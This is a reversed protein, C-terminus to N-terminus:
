ASLDLPATLRVICGQGPKSEIVLSGGLDAMREQISFLGFGSAPNQQPAATQSDFGVGDDGVIIEINAGDRKLSVEVENAQAHRVVNALLERVNRFLIARVDETLPKEQGDDFFETQLGDHSGIQDRLWASVATELGLENLIPSSLDFILTRTDRIAELLSQSVEDLLANRRSESTVKRATGVQIRALALSQSVHDHLDAAIRRREREEVLTLEAALAKLRQQYAELAKEAQKQESIDRGICYMTQEELMPTATWSITHISGDKGIYRNEFDITPHGAALQDVESDNKAHDDPHIFDLFPRSLLEEQTYGLVREWAPNLYKFWSDMGAICILNQSTNLIRDREEQLQKRLTIDEIVAVFYDPVGRDTHVLSVTLNVWVIKGDKRFYRKELFYSTAKGDLLQQVQELDNELDDPHTIDQFTLALMEDHTYDVIDCFRQNLRLFRGDPAVHAIGVAAQEFTARFRVESERLAEEARKRTTIDESMFVASTINGREDRLPFGLTQIWCKRSVPKEFDLTKLTDIGDYEYQPFRVEEGLYVKEIYPMVGLTEAQADTHINYKEYLEKLTADNLAYLQAYADNSQLLKGDLGHIQISVPSQEIVARFNEESKQLEEEARKREVIEARLTENAEVLEATQEAVLEQLHLQVYRLQLHTNVRALVEAEEYPKSVFDVGGVEFGQVRDDVDQLASVFIVPIDATRKDRKLRRCLEFGDMEPMRVDLLILGPPHALASELALQPREAPRVRYGAQTLIDTLLRLNAVTDDVVLIDAALPIQNHTATM